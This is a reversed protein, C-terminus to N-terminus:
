ADNGLKSAVANVIKTADERALSGPWGNAELIEAVTQVAELVQAPPVSVVGHQTLIARAEDQLKHVDRYNILSREPALLRFRKKLVIKPNDDSYIAKQNKTKKLYEAILTGAAGTFTPVLVTVCMWSLADLYEPPLYHRVEDGAGANAYSAHPELVAYAESGLQDFLENSM